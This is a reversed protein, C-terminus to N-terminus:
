AVEPVVESSVTEESSVELTAVEETVPIEVVSAGLISEGMFTRISGDSFAYTISVINEMNNRKNIKLLGVKQKM